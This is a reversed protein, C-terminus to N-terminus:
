VDKGGHRQARTANHAMKRRIAAVLDINWSRADDFVRIVIDALESPLGEPKGTMGEAYPQWEPILSTHVYDKTPDLEPHSRIWEAGEIAESAILLLKAYKPARSEERLALVKARLAEHTEPIVALLENFVPDPRHWGREESAEHCAAIIAALGSWDSDTLAM